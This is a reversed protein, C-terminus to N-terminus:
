LNLPINESFNTSQADIAPQVSQCGSKSVLRGVSENISQSTSSSFTKNPVPIHGPNLCM